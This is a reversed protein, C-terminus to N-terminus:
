LRRGGTGIRLWLLGTWAGWGVEPLDVSWYYPDSLIIIMHLWNKPYTVIANKPKLIKLYDHKVASM